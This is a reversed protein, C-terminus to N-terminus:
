SQLHGSAKTRSNLDISGLHGYSADTSRGSTKIDRHHVYPLGSKKGTHHNRQHSLQARGLHTELRFLGQQVARQGARTFDHFGETCRNRRDGWVRIRVGREAHGEGDLAGELGSTGFNGSLM